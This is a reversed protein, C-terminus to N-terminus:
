DAHWTHSSVMFVLNIRLSPDKSLPFQVDAAFTASNNHRMGPIERHIAQKIRGHCMQQKRGQTWALYKGALQFHYGQFITKLNCSSSNWM